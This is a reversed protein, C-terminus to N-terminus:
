TIRGTPPPTSPAGVDAPDTSSSADAQCAPCIGWYTVESETLTFGHDLSPTLCATHGVACPVDVVAGCRRCVLHHHNDRTDIEYRASTAGAPDVRRVLGGDTLVAVVDYVAQVSVHGLRAAVDRVLDEASAHPHERLSALVAVRPRTVRLGRSRLAAVDAVDATAGLDGGGDAM